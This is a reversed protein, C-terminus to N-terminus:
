LGETKGETDRGSRGVQIDGLEIARGERQEQEANVNADEGTRLRFVPTTIQGTTYQEHLIGLKLQRYVRTAMVNTIFASIAILVDAYADPVSPSFIAAATTITFGVTTRFKNILIELVTCGFIQVFSM